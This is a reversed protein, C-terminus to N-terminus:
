VSKCAWLHAKTFLLLFIIWVHGYQSLNPTHLALNTKCSINFCMADTAAWHLPVCGTLINLSISEWLKECGGRGWLHTELSLLFSHHCTVFLDLFLSVLANYICQAFIISVWQLWREMRWRGPMPPKKVMGSRCKFLDTAMWLWLPSILLLLHSRWVSHM